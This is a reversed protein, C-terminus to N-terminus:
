ENSDARKRQERDIAEQLLTQHDKIGKIERHRITHIDRRVGSMISELREIRERNRLIQNHLEHILFGDYLNSLTLTVFVGVMFRLEGRSETYVGPMTTFITYLILVSLAGVIMVKTLLNNNQYM